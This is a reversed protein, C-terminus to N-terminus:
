YAELRGAETLNAAMSVPQIDATKISSYQNHLPKLRFKSLFFYFLMAQKETLAM